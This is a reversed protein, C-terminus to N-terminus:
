LILKWEKGVREIYDLHPYNKAFTSKSVGADLCAKEAETRLHAKGDGGVDFLVREIVEPKSEERPGGPSNSIEEAQLDPDVAVNKVVSAAIAEGTKPNFVNHGEITFTLTDPIAGMNGKGRAMARVGPRELAYGLILVSRAVDTFQGSAGARDRVGRASGKNPHMTYAVCIDRRGALARLPALGGRVDHAVHSNLDGHLQDLIQDLYVVKIDHEEVFRDLEGIHRVIDLAVGAKYELGFVRSVDGGAAVIRPTWVQDPSDEDGVVLVNVPRGHHQGPLTGKTWGAVLYSMLTGKGAGGVGILATLSGITFFGEYAWKPATMRDERLQRVGFLSGKESNEETNEKPFFFIEDTPKSGPDQGMLYRVLPELWDAPIPPDCREENALRLYERLENEGGGRRRVSGGLSLLAQRRGGQKVKEGVDRATHTGGNKGTKEVALKRLAGPVEKLQDVPPLNGLYTVGSPHVSPPAIVYAGKGRIECGPLVNDITPLDGRFYVQGGRAGALSDPYKEDREPAEGTWVFVHRELDLESVVDEPDAGYKTDIDLPCIGTPGCAIGINADPWRDWWQLIQREDRTSDKWGRATLPRKERPRCPFVHYGREAHTLASQELSM